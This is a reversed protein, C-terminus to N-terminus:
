WARDPAPGEGDARGGSGRLVASLRDAKPGCRSVQADVRQEGSVKDLIFVIQADRTLMRIDPHFVNEPAARDVQFVVFQKFYM